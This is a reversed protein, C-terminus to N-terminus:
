DEKLLVLLYESWDKSWYKEIESVGMRQIANLELKSNYKKAKHQYCVTSTAWDEMIPSGNYRVLNLKYDAIKGCLECTPTDKIM